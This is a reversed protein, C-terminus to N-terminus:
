CILTETVTDLFRIVMFSSILVWSIKNSEPVELDNPPLLPPPPCFHAVPSKFSITYKTNSGSQQQHLDIELLLWITHM